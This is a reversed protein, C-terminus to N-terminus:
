QASVPFADGTDNRLYLFLTEGDQSPIANALRVAPTELAPIFISDRAGNISHVVVSVADGEALPAEVGKITVTSMQGNSDDMVPPWVLWGDPVVMEGAGNYVTISDIGDPEDDTNQVFVCLVGGNDVTAPDGELVGYKQGVVARHFSSGDAISVSQGHAAAVTGFLISFAISANRMNEGNIILENLSAYVSAIACLHAVGGFM